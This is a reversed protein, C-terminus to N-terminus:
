KDEKELEELEDFTVNYKEEEDEEDEEDEKESTEIVEDAAGNKFREIYKKRLDEYKERFEDRPPTEAAAAFDMLTEADDGEISYREIIEAIKEKM